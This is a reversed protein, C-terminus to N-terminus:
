PHVCCGHKCPSLSWFREMSAPVPRVSSPNDRHQVAPLPTCLTFSLAVATPRAVPFSRCNLPFVSCSSVDPLVGSAVFILAEAHSWWTLITVWLPLSKNTNRVERHQLLKVRYMSKITVHPLRISLQGFVPEDVNGQLQSPRATVLAPGHVTPPTLFTGAASATLTRPM